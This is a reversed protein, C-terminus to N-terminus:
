GIQLLYCALTRGSQLRWFLVDAVANGGEQGPYGASLIADMNEAAYNISLASGNLLVLVVPKGTAKIAEM